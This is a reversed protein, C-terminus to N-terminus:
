RASSSSRRRPKKVRSLGLGKDMVENFAPQSLRSLDGLFTSSRKALQRLPVPVYGALEVYVAPDESLHQALRVVEWQDMLAQGRLVQIVHRVTMKADRMIKRRKEVSQRSWDTRLRELFAAPMALPPVMSEPVSQVAEPFEEAVRAQYLLLRFRRREPANRGCVDAIRNAMAESPVRGGQARPKLLNSVYGQAVGLAQAFETQSGWRRQRYMRKVLDCCQLRIMKSPQRM